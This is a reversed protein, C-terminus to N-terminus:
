NSRDTPIKPGAELILVKKGAHGLKYAVIAGAIGSGVIIADYEKTTSM